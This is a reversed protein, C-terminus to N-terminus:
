QACLLAIYGMPVQVLIRDASPNNTAYAGPEMSNSKLKNAFSTAGRCKLTRFTPTGGGDEM